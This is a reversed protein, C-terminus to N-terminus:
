PVSNGRRESLFDLRLGSRCRHLHRKETDISLRNKRRGELRQVLALGIEAKRKGGEGTDLFLIEALDPYNEQSAIM